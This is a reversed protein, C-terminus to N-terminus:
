GEEMEHRDVGDEGAEEGESAGVPGADDDQVDVVDDDDGDDVGGDDDDDDDNCACHRTGEM